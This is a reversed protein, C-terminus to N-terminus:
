FPLEAHTFSKKQFQTFTNALNMVFTIMPALYNKRDVNFSIAVYQEIKKVTSYQFLKKHKDCITSPNITEYLDCKEKKKYIPPYIANSVQLSFDIECSVKVCWQIITSVHCFLLFLFERLQLKLFHDIQKISTAFLKLIKYIYRFYISLLLPPGM